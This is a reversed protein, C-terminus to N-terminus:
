PKTVSSTPAACTTHGETAREPLLQEGCLRLPASRRGTASTRRLEVCRPQRRSLFYAKATGAPAPSLMVRTLSFGGDYSVTLELSDSDANSVCLSIPGEGCSTRHKTLMVTVQARPAPLPPDPLQRSGATFTLEDLGRQDATGPDGFFDDPAYTSVRIRYRTNAAWGHAPVLEVRQASCGGLGSQMVVTSFAPTNGAADVVSIQDPDFAGTLTVARNLPV